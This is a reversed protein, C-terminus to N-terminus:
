VGSAHSLWALLQEPYVTEDTAQLQEVSWWRHGLVSRRELPTWASDDLPFRDVKISFYVEYQDIQDGDFSFVARRDGIPPGVETVRLGTEERLERVAAQEDSEGPEVGGGPPFWWTGSDPERPDFGLFLLVCNHEDVVLIKTSRRIVVDGTL